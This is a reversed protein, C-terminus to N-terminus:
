TGSGFRWRKSCRKAEIGSRRICSPTSSNRTLAWAVGRGVRQVVTPLCLCVAVRRGPGGRLLSALMVGLERGLQRVAYALASPGAGPGNLVSRGRRRSLRGHFSNRWRNGHICGCNKVFDEEWPVWWGLGRGRWRGHGSSLLGRLLCRGRACRRAMGSRRCRLRAHSPDPCLTARGPGVARALRRILPAFRVCEDHGAELPAVREAPPTACASGCPGPPPLRSARSATAPRSRPERRTAAKPSEAPRAPGPRSRARSDPSNAAPSHARRPGSQPPAAHGQFTRCSTPRSRDAPPLLRRRPQGAEAAACAPRGSAGGATKPRRTFPRPRAARPNRRGAGVM